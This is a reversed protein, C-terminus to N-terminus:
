TKQGDVSSGPRASATDHEGASQPLPEGGADREDLGPDRRHEDDRV